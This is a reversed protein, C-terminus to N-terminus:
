IKFVLLIVGNQLKNISRGEYIAHAVFFLLCLVNQVSQVSLCYYWAASWKSPQCKANCMAGFQSSFLGTVCCFLRQLSCCCCMTWFTSCLMLRLSLGTAAVSAQKTRNELLLQVYLCRWLWWNIWWWWWWRRWWWNMASVSIIVMFVWGPKCIDPNADSPFASSRWEWEQKYMPHQCWNSFRNFIRM